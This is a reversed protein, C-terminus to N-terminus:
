NGRRLLSILLEYGTILFRSYRTLPNTAFSPKSIKRQKQTIIAQINEETKPDDEFSNRNDEFAKQALKTILARVPVMGLRVSQINLNIKGDSDMVPIAIITIVSSVEKYTLTGMLFISHNSFTIYPDSFSMEGFQQPWEWRSAIDNLGSQPIILEFPENRQIQNFFKPGLEHTLYLSVQEPNETQFPKYARPTYWLLICIGTLIGVTIASLGWLWFGTSSSSKKQESTTNKM